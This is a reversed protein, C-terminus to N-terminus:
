LAKARAWAAQRCRFGAPSKGRVVYGFVGGGALLALPANKM